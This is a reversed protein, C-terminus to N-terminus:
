CELLLACHHRCVPDWGPGAPFGDTGCGPNNGETVDNFGNGALADAYLLPNLFGLPPMRAALRQNNLLAVVSAFTPSAASTGNVAYFQGDRVVVYHIAQASVDPYGRGSANYRGAYSPLAALAPPSALYASVAASQYSPQPFLNSFGGSSFPAALEPALSHTGGVSTVSHNRFHLHAFFCFLLLHLHLHYRRISSVISLHKSLHALLAPWRRLLHKVRIQARLCRWRGLLLHCKHRARRTARVRQLDHQSIPLAHAFPTYLALALARSM